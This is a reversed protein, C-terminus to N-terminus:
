SILVRLLTDLSIQNESNMLFNNFAIAKYEENENIEKVLALLDNHDTKGKFIKLFEIIIGSKNEEEDIKAQKIIKFLREQTNIQNKPNELFSSIIRSKQDQKKIGAKDFIEFLQNIEIKNKSWKLIFRIIDARYDEYDNNFNNHQAEHFLDNLIENDSNNDLEM